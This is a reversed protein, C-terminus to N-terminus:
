KKNMTYLSYTTYGETKDKTKMYYVRIVTEPFLANHIWKNYDDQETYAYKTVLKINANNKIKKYTYSGKSDPKGIEMRVFKYGKNMQVSVKGSTKTLYQGYEYLLKGGYKFAKIPSDYSYNTTVTITKKCRISGDAKIVDFTVKYTGAKKAFFSIKVDGRSIVTKTPYGIYKNNEDYPSASYDKSKSKQYKNETIQAILNPSSSKVNGVTDGEFSVDVDTYAGGGRAYNYAYDVSLEERDNYKVGNVEDHVWEAQVPTICLAAVAVAAAATKIWFSKTMIKRM